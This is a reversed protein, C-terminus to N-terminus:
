LVEPADPYSWRFMVRKVGQGLPTGSIGTIEDIRINRFLVFKAPQPLIANTSNFKASGPTISGVGNHLNLPVALSPVNRFGFAIPTKVSNRQPTYRGFVTDKPSVTWDFRGNAYNYDQMLVPNTFQNNALGPLM